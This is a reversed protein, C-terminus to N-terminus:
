RGVSGIALWSTVEADSGARPSQILDRCVPSEVAVADIPM